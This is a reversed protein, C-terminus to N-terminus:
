TWYPGSGLLDSSGAGTEQLERPDEATAEIEHWESTQINISRQQHSPVVSSHTVPPVPSLAGTAAGTKAQLRAELAAQSACSVKRIRHYHAIAVRQSNGCWATANEIGYQNMWDTEASARLNQIPKKWEPIGMAELLRTLRTGLNTHKRLRPMVYESTSTQRARLLAAEVEPMIPVERISTSRNRLKPSHIRMVGTELNVDSWRLEQIESSLRLGAFRSLAFMLADEEDQCASIITRVIDPEVYVHNSPNPPVSRKIMSNIFPNKSVLGHECAHAFIQALVGCMKNVTAVSMLEQKRKGPRGHLFDKFEVAMGTTLEDLRITPAFLLAALNRARKWVKVTGQSARISQSDIYSDMYDILSTHKPRSQVVGIKVLRKHLKDSIKTLWMLTDAPVPTSTSLAAILVDLRSAFALCQQKSTLGLRKGRMCTRQKGPLAYNIRYGDRDRSVTVSM